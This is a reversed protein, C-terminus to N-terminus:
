MLFAQETFKFFSSYVKQIDVYREAMDKSIIGISSSSKIFKWGTYGALSEFINSRFYDTIKNKNIRGM